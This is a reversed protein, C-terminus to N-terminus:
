NNLASSAPKASDPLAPKSSNPTILNKSAQEKILKAQRRKIDIMWGRLKKDPKSQIKANMAFHYYADDFRGMYMDYLIGLNRHAVANHPWVNIAQLYLAESKKFNGQERMMVAYLNYADGNYKNTAIAQEFAGIALDINQQRWYCLGLNVWPGSFNPAAQTLQMFQVQAQSWRKAELLTIGKNFEVTFDAPM